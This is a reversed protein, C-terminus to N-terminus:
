TKRDFDPTNEFPIEIRNGNPNGMVMRGANLKNAPIQLPDESVKIKWDRLLEYSRANKPDNLDKILSRTDELRKAADCKTTQAIDKMLRFDNRMQDTLGTM